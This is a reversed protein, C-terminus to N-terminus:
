NLHHRQRLGAILDAVDREPGPALGFPDSIASAPNELLRLSNLIAHALVDLHYGGELALVLRGGCLEAALAQVQQQLAVFGALSLREMALPDRWHADYGASVLILDPRFRRAFPVLLREFALAYGADGVGPRSPSTSHAAPAPGAGPTPSAAQAPISPINTPRSFAWPLITTSFPKLAMAM